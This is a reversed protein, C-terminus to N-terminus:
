PAGERHPLQETDLLFTIRNHILITDSEIITDFEIIIVIIANGRCNIIIIINYSGAINVLM